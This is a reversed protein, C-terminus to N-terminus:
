IKVKKEIVEIHLESCTDLSLGLYQDCARLKNEVEQADALRRLQHAIEGMSNAYAPFSIFYLLFAIIIIRM